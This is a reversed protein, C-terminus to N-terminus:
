QSNNNNSPPEYPTRTANNNVNINCGRNNIITTSSSQNVGIGIAASAGSGRSNPGRSGQSTRGSTGHHKPGNGRGSQSYGQMDTLTPRETIQKLLLASTIFTLHVIPPPLDQSGGFNSAFRPSNAPSKPPFSICARIHRSLESLVLHRLQGIRSYLGRLKASFRICPCVM